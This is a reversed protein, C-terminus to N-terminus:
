GDDGDEESAEVVTLTDCEAEAMEQKFWDGIQTGTISWEDKKLHVVTYFKLRQHLTIALEPSVGEELLLALALQAPGSGAYGWEFADAHLRVKMSKAPSLPLDNKLVHAGTADRYGQYLNDMTTEKPAGDRIRGRVSANTRGLASAIEPVSIGRARLEALRADERPTWFSHTKRM